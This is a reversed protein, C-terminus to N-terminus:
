KNDLLKQYINLYRQGITKWSYQTTNKEIEQNNIASKQKIIKYNEIIKTLEKKTNFLYGRGNEVRDELGDMSKYLIIPTGCGTAEITTISISGPFVAVDIENYFEALKKTDKILPYFNVKDYEATLLKKQYKSLENENLGVIKCEVNNMNSIVSLLLELNKAENIKGAFGLILTDKKTNKKEKIYKFVTADYGLPIIEIEEKNINYHSSLFTCSAQNVTIIKDIQNKTINFLLQNIKYFIKAKLKVSKLNPNSHDNIIVIPKKKMFYICFLVSFTIFNGIGHIHIIDYEEKNILNYLKRIELIIQKNFLGISKLRIIKSINYSYLGPKFNTIKLFQELDKPTKTSTLFTTEIKEKELEDTLYHELYKLESQFTEFVRLLKLKKM